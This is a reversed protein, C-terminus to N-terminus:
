VLQDPSQLESTHEESRITPFNDCVQPAASNARRNKKKSRAVTHPVTHFSELQTCVIIQYLRECKGFQEGPNARQQPASRMSLCFAQANIIQFDVHSSVLRNAGAHRKIERRLFKEKQRVQNSRGAFHYRASFNRFVHPVYSEFGICVNDIDHHATQPCLHVIREPSLEDIGDAGHTIDKFRTSGREMAAWSIRSKVSAAARNSAQPS